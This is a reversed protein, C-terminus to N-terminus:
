PFALCVAGDVNMVADAETNIGNGLTVEERPSEGDQVRRGGDGAASLVAVSRRHVIGPRRRVFGQRISDLRGMVGDFADQRKGIALGLRVTRPREGLVAFSTCFRVPRTSM